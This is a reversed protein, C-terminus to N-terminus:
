GELAPCRSRSSQARLAPCCCCISRENFCVIVNDNLKTIRTRNNPWEFSMTQTLEANCYASRPPASTARLALNEGPPELPPISNHGAPPQCAPSKEAAPRKQRSRVGSESEAPALMRPVCCFPIRSALLLSPCFSEQSALPALIQCQDACICQQQQQQQSLLGPRSRAMMDM